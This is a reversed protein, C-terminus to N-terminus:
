KSKLPLAQPIAPKLIQMVLPNINQSDKSTYVVSGKSVDLIYTFNNETAVKNVAKIIENIIPQILESNRKQLTETANQEFEKLRKEKDLLESEKNKKVPESFTNMGKEYDELLKNYIITMEDYTSQMEKTEKNLKAAASDRAPLAALIEAIDVHGIKLSNQSFASPATLSYLALILAATLINKM